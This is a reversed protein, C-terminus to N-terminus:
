LSRILVRIRALIALSQSRLSSLLGRPPEPTHLEREWLMVDTIDIFEGVTGKFKYMVHRM